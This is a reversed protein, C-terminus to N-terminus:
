DRSLWALIEQDRRIRDILNRKLRYIEAVSAFMAPYLHYIESPKLDQLFSLRAIQREREDEVRASIAEWLSEALDHEVPALTTLLGQRDLQELDTPVRFEHRTWRVADDLASSCCRRLYSLLAGVTPFDNFREPGLATWFRDFARNVWFDDTEDATQRAPHRHVWRRVLPGYINFVAAWADEDRAVLARRLMEWCFREDSQEDREYRASEERCRQVIVHLPFQEIEM